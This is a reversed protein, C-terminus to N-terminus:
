SRGLSCKTTIPRGANILRMKQTKQKIISYLKFQDGFPSLDTVFFLNQVAYAIFDDDYIFIAQERTIDYQQAMYDILADVAVSVSVENIYLRQIGHSLHWLEEWTLM